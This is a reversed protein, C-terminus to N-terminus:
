KKANGKTSGTKALLSLKFVTKKREKKCKAREKGKKDEEDDNEESSSTSKEEETSEEETDAKRKLGQSHKVVEKASDVAQLAVSAAVAGCHSAMEWQGERKAQNGQELLRRLEEFKSFVQSVSQQYNTSSNGYSSGQEDEKDNDALAPPLPPSPSSSLLASKKSFRKTKKTCKSM